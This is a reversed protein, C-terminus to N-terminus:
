PSRHLLRQDPHRTAKLLSDHLLLFPALFSTTMDKPKPNPTLRLSAGHVGMGLGIKWLADQNTWLPLREKALSRTRKKRRDDVVWTKLTCDFHLWLASVYKM